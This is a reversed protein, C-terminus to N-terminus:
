STIGDLKAEAAGPLAVELVDGGALPAQELALGVLDAQGVLDGSFM